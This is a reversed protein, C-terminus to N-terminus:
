ILLGPVLKAQHRVAVGVRPLMEELPTKRTGITKRINEKVALRITEREQNTKEQAAQAAKHEALRTQEGCFGSLEVIKVLLM